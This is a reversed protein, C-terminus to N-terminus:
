KTRAGSNGDGGAHSFAAQVIRLVYPMESSDPPATYNLSYVLRRGGGPAAFVANTYGPETGTKGWLVTHDPLTVRMIGGASFCPVGKDGPETLSACHHNGSGNVVSGPDPIQFVLKQQAAPLLRGRLLAALFRDLDGATSIMGGEAWVYPSQETVDALHRHDKNGTVSRYGHAHPAPLVPDDADPVYTHRLGLPRTLRTRVEHAYSHGTAKEIILGAIFYNIGNYQQVRGPPSKPPQRLAAGVVEAPTWSRFRHGVFWENTGDGALAADAPPLGSTHDLLQRITVDKFTAPILDPLLPRAPAELDVRGEAALQLLVTATFVKSISGIRFYSRPNVPARTAIDAVGATGTWSGGSGRVQLLAGTVARAPLGTISARLAAPDLPPLPAAATTRDYASVAPAPAAPASVDPGPTALVPTAPAAAALACAATLTM